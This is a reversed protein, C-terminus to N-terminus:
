DVLVFRFREYQNNGFDEGSTYYFANEKAEEKTYQSAHCTLADIRITLQDTVDIFVEDPHNYSDAILFRLCTHPRININLQNKFFADSRAYPYAAFIAAKATNIHDKHNVWQEGKKFTIFLEEPNSTIILEPQFERIQFTLLEITKVDSEIFGDKLHLYINNRKEVGLIKMADSDEKERIATLEETTTSIKRMGMEGSSVKIVRVEKGEEILRKVTGGCLIECDDPHPMIVLVRTVDKFIENFSDHIIFNKGM